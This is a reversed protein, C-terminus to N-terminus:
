GPSHNEAQHMKISLAGITQSIQSLADVKHSDIMDIARYINKFATRLKHIEIATDASQHRMKSAQKKLVKSTKEIVGGTTTHLFSIQELILKENALAQAVTIATQLASITTTTSKDIGKILAANNKRVLDMALYSQVSITLQTLLDQVKQRLSTLFEKKLVNMREVNEEEVRDLCGTIQKDLQRGFYIHKELAYIASWMRGQKEELVANDKLLEDKGNNLSFITSNLHTQASQYKRFYKKIDNRIPIFGLLKKKSFLMSYNSPDLDEITSRLNLLAQSIPSSDDFFGYAMTNIPRSLLELSITAAEKIEETGLDQITYVKDKLDHLDPSNQFLVQLQKEVKDNLAVIDDDSLQVM